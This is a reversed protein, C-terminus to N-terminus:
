YHLATEITEQIAKTFAIQFCQEFTTAEEFAYTWESEFIVWFVQRLVTQAQIKQWAKELEVEQTTYTSDGSDRGRQKTVLRRM